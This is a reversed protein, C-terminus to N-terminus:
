CRRLLWALLLTACLVVFLLVARTSGYRTIVPLIDDRDFRDFVFVPDAFGYELSLTDGARLHVDPSPFPARWVPQGNAEAFYQRAPTATLPEGQRHVVVSKSQQSRKSATGIQLVFKGPSRAEFSACLHGRQWVLAVSRGLYRLEPISSLDVAGPDLTTVPFGEGVEQRDVEEAWPARDTFEYKALPRHLAGDFVQIPILITDGVCALPSYHGNLRDSRGEDPSQAYTRRTGREGVAIPIEHFFLYEAKDDGVLVNTYTIWFAGPKRAIAKLILYRDGDPSRKIQYGDQGDLVDKFRENFKRVIGQATAKDIPDRWEAFASTTIKHIGDWWAFHFCWAITAIGAVAMAGVVGLCIVPFAGKVEPGGKRVGELVHYAEHYAQAGLHRIAEALTGRAQRVIRPNLGGVVGV